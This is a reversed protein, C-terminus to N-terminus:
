RKDYNIFDSLVTYKIHNKDKEEPKILYKLSYYLTLLTIIIIVGVIFWDWNSEPGTGHTIGRTVKPQQLKCADCAGVTSFLLLFVLVM